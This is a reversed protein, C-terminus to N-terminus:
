HAHVALADLLNAVADSTARAVSETTFGGIHSTLIVRPHALLPSPAPPETEFVDTAYTSVQGKELASLLAAPDVLGARATNVVVAGPAMLALLEAGILPRGDAPMPAHLSLVHAGELAGALDTRHFNPDTLRDGPAYPDYGQVTAGLALCFCAFSAGIAGLGLIAVRAGAMERGIRRPWDGHKMGEHTPVVDRLGALTLTLALEAVGRANAGEAKAVTIGRAQLTALPLNDIGTGNRSIVRLQAASAIARDTVPEVGALWGVCGPLAAILQAETPTAGPAPFVLEFGAETLPSLAPHGGQSLSRPTILIRGSM